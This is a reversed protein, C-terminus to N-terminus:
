LLSFQWHMWDYDREKGLSIAGEDYVFEWYKNYVPKSFTAKPKHTKLANNDPDMDVAIGWSHMSWSSGGRMKRVNLCGGWLDLRLEKIKEMGYHDFTRKWIREMPVKVLEHCSYKHITQGKDWAIRMPYPLICSTQRTGVRGYFSTCESQRPWTHLPTVKGSLKIPITKPPIDEALKETEDRWNIVMKAQYVQRANELVHGVFGDIVGVDIKMSKYLIQEAATKLRTKNWGAPNVKYSRILLACADYFDQNLKGDIAGTIFGTKKLHRQIAINIDEISAM